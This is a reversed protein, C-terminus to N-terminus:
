TLDEMPPKEWTFPGAWCDGEHARPKRCEVPFGGAELSGNKHQHQAQTVNGNECLRQVYVLREGEPEDIWTVSGCKGSWTGGLWPGRGAVLRNLVADRM